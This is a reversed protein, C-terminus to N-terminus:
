DDDIYITEQKFLGGFVNRVQVDSEAEKAKPKPAEKRKSVPAKKMVAKKSALKQARAQGRVTALEVKPEENVNQAATALQSSLKDWSFTSGMDKAKAFLSEVSASAREQAKAALNDAQAEQSAVVKAEEKLKNAAAAAAEQAKESAERAEEKAVKDAYAKRRGDEPIPGFLEDFSRAPAAPDTYIEVVKNEALATNSFVDAVLSAIQSKAVKYDNTSDRGEAQILEALDAAQIVQLADSATVASTAGNETPGVTVVVKGANGIAKAISEADEFTSEVANLRKSEEASIIKYKAALQALEQAVGLKAVGARVSFGKRLLTQAIRIGAFDFQFPNSKATKSEQDETAAKAKIVRFSEANKAALAALRSNKLSIRLHPATALIYSNSSLAPAM